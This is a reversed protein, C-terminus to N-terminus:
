NVLLFGPLLIMFSRGLNRDWTSHPAGAAPAHSAAERRWVSLLYLDHILSCAIITPHCRDLLDFCAMREDLPHDQMAAFVLDWPARVNKRLLDPKHRYESVPISMQPPHFAVLLPLLEHPYPMQRLEPTLSAAMALIGEFM